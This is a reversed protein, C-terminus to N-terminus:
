ASEVLPKRVQARWANKTTYVFDGTAVMDSAAQNRVRLIVSDAKRKVCKMTSTRPVHNGQNPM